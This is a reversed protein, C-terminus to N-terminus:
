KRRLKMKSFNGVSRMLFFQNLVRVLNKTRRLWRFKLLYFLGVREWNIVFNSGMLGFSIIRHFLFPCFFLLHSNLFIIIVNVYWLKQRLQSGSTYFIYFSSMKERVGTSLSQFVIVGRKWIIELVEWLSIPLLHLPKHYLKELLLLHPAAISCWSSFNPKRIRNGCQEGKYRAM